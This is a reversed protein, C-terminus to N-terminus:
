STKTLGIKSRISGSMLSMFATRVQVNYLVWPELVWKADPFEQLMTSTLKKYYAAHGESYTTYEHTIGSHLLGADVGMWHSLDSQINKTGDWYNFDGTLKAIDIMFGAFPIGADRYNRFLTMEKDVLMNIVAQQQLDWVPAFIAGNIGSFWGSALNNPFATTSKWTMNKNYFDIQAQTYTKTTDINTSYGFSNMAWHQPDVMFFKLGSCDAYTQYKSPSDYIRLALYDYGVQKAYKCGNIATDRWAIGYNNKWSSWDAAAAVVPIAPIWQAVFVILM